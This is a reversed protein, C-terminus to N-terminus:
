MISIQIGDRSELMKVSECSENGPTDMSTNTIRFTLTTRPAVITTQHKIQKYLLFNFLLLSKSVAM